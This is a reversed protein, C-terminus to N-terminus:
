REGCWLFSRVESEPSLFEGAFEDIKGPADRRCDACELVVVSWTFRHAGQGACIERGWRWSTDWTWVAAVGAPMGGADERWLRVLYGEEATLLSVATWNLLVYREGRLDAGDAPWLLLPAPLPPGPTPTPTPALTPTSTPTPPGLPIRLVQGIQLLEPDQIDNAKMIDGIPVGFRAAIESLTDGAQVEYVAIHEAPAPTGAGAPITLVQGVRLIDDEELANAALLDRLPVGFRKALGTLTDGAAVTYTMALSVATPPESPPMTP